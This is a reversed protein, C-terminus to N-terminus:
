LPACGGGGSPGSLGRHIQGFKAGQGGIQGAGIFAGGSLNPRPLRGQDFRRSGQSPQLPQGLPGGAPLPVAWGRALINLHQHEGTIMTDGGLPHRRIRRLDGGLHHRVEGGTAGRDILQSVGDAGVQGYM